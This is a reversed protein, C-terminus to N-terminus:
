LSTGIMRILSAPIVVPPTLSLVCVDAGLTTGLVNPGARFVQGHLYLQSVGPRYILRPPGAVPAIVLLWNGSYPCPISLVIRGGFPVQAEALGPGALLFSLILGFGILYKKVKNM